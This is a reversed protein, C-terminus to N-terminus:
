VVHITVPVTIGMQIWSGQTTRAYYQVQARYVGPATGEPVKLTATEVYRQGQQMGLVNKDLTIWSIASGDKPYDLEGLSVDLTMNSEGPNLYLTMPFEVSSGSRIADNFRCNSVTLANVPIASIVIAAVLGILILYSKKM